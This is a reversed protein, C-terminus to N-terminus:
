SGDSGGTVSRLAEQNVRVGMQGQLNLVYQVLIDDQVAISLEAISKQDPDGGAPTNVATVRFVIRSLNDENLAIGSRNAATQFIGSMANRNLGEVTANRRFKERTQVTLGPAAAEFSQGTDLKERIADAQESLRRAIQDDRWRAEVRDRVEELTRDRSPTVELVEFWAYGEGRGLEAPDAETGVDTIFAEPLLESLGPVGEVPKGDPGRGSRDVADVTILKTGVKTAIEALHSGAAREDEVLDHRDLITRRARQLAVDRRLAEAIEEFAPQKGPEIKNVRVFVTGFRGKVPKSVEGAPLAFVAEAVAPDLIERQTVLGLSVDKPNLKREAVIEEFKAGGAFREAAAKAEEANAVVIQEVERREPQGLRDRVTEYTKKLDDDSIQIGAAIIEPTLTLVAIKRYEPARFASAREKFYAEIDAASAAPVDGAQAPTLEVFQVSREENEFRRMAERLVNPAAADAGLSRGLQQRLVLSREAQVYRNETFGANRVTEYFRNPDFNGGAGRFAPNAHIRALLTEDSVNLGLEKGKVDLTTESILEGLVQRDLGFARAQDPTIGRGIQRGLQQIRDQYVQRFTETEIKVDGVRAIELPSAGRFMDGVGWIAFSIALLGILGKAVIGGSRKRLSDLM